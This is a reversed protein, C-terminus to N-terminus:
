DKADGNRSKMAGRRRESDRQSMRTSQSFSVIDQSHFDRGALAPAPLSSALRATTEAVRRGFRLCRDHPTHSQAVFHNNDHLGLSNLSNFATHSTGNARPM